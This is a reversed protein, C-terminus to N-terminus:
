QEEIDKIFVAVINKKYIKKDEIYGFKTWCFLTIPNIEALPDASNTPLGGRHFLVWGGM